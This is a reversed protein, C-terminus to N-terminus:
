ALGEGYYDGQEVCPPKFIQTHNLPRIDADKDVVWITGPAYELQFPDRGYMATAPALERERGQEFEELTIEGAVYREKLRDTTAPSDLLRVVLNYVLTIGFGAILIVAIATVAAM